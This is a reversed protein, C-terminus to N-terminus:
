IFVETGNFSETVLDESEGDVDHSYVAVIAVQVSFFNCWPKVLKYFGDLLM